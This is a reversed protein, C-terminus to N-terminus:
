SPQIGNLVANYAPAYGVLAGFTFTSADYSMQIVPWQVAMYDQPGRWEWVNPVESYPFPLTYSLALINGQEMYPHVTVAVSKGTVKNLLRDVRYNGTVGGESGVPVTIRYPAGSAGLVLDTIKISELAHVWLEDYDAKYQLWGPLFVTKTIADLTLASNLRPVSLGSALTQTMLGDYANTNQTSDSSPVTTGSTALAGSITFVNGGTYGLGNAPGENWVQLFRSGDGPDSAGTSAFVAFGHAGAPLSTLTVDVVQGASVAQTVAASPVSYGFHTIACVKIYVNTTFGTLATENSYANAGTGATRVTVNASVLTPAAVAATGRGALLLQEEGMMHALLLNHSILGRLDEFGVGAYQAAWTLDDSLGQLKYLVNATSTTYNIKQPRNLSLGRFSTSVSESTSIDLNALGGTQSGTIGDIRRFRHSTGVGKQRPIRNRIPTLVPFVKKSPAELDYLWPGQDTTWNSIGSLTIEKVVDPEIGLKALSQGIKDLATGLSQARTDQATHVPFGAAAAAKVFEGDLELNAARVTKFSADAESVMEALEANSAVAVGEANKRLSPNGLVDASKTIPGTYAM